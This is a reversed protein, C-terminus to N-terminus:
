PSYSFDIYAVGPNRGRVRFPGCFVEEGSVGAACCSEVLARMVLQCLSSRGDRVPLRLSVVGAASAGPAEVGRFRGRGLRGAEESRGVIGGGMLRERAAPPGAAPELARGSIARM